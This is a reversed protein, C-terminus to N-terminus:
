FDLDVIDFDQSLPTFDKHELLEDSITDTSYCSINAQKHRHIFMQLQKDNLKTEVFFTGCNDYPKNIDILNILIKRKVM